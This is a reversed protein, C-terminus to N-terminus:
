ASMKCDIEHFPSDVRKSLGNHRGLIIEWERAFFRRGPYTQSYSYLM